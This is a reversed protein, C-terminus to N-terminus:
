HRDPGFPITDDLGSAARNASGGRSPKSEPQQERPVFAKIWVEGRENPIPLADLKISYGDGERDKMMSGVRIWYTGGDKKPRGSCIDFRQTM